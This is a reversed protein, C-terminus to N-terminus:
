GAGGDMAETRARPKGLLEAFFARITNRWGRKGRPPRDEGAYAAAIRRRQDAQQLARQYRWDALHTERDVPAYPVTMVKEANLRVTYSAM